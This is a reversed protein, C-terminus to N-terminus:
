TVEPRALPPDDADAPHDRGPALVTANERHLQRHAFRQDRARPDEGPEDAIEGLARIGLALKALHLALERMDRAEALDPLHSRRERVLEILRQGRDAVIQVGAPAHQS